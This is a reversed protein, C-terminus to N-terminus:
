ELTHISTDSSREDPLKDFVRENKMVEKLWIEEKVKISSRGCGSVKPNIIYGRSGAEETTKVYGNEKLWKMAQWATKYNLGALKAVHSLTTHIIPEYTQLSALRFFIKVVAFTPADDLLENIAEKYMFIWGDKLASGNVVKSFSSVFNDNDDFLSQQIIKKM